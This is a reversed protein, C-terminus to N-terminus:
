QISQQCNTKTRSDKGVLGGNVQGGILRGGNGIWWEVMGGNAENGQRRGGGVESGEWRM